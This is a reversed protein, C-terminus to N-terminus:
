AVNEQPFNLRAFEGFHELAAADFARAAEEPTDFYGLSKVPGHEGGPHIQAQWRNRSKPRFTIGRYPSRSNKPKRSNLANQQQNVIRLNTMVDRLTDGDKHDALLNAPCETLLRHLALVFDKGGWQISAIAYWHNRNKQATWRLDCPRFFESEGNRRHYVFRREWCYADLTAVFGRTLAITLVEM